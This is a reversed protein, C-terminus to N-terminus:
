EQERFPPLRRRPSYPSNPNVDVDVDKVCSQATGHPGSGAHWPGDRIHADRVKSLMLCKWNKAAASGQSSEGGFQYVLAKEEGDTHGLIVPCLERRYGDYRCVVQKRWAMARYFLRYTASETM